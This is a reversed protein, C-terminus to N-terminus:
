KPHRRGARPLKAPRAPTSTSDITSYSSGYSRDNVIIIKKKSDESFLEAGKRTLEYYRWKRPLSRKSILGSKILIDLDKYTTSKPLDLAKSLHTLNMSKSKLLQLMCLRNPSALARLTEADLNVQSSSM